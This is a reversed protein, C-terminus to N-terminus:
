KKVPVAKELKRKKSKKETTEEVELLKLLKERAEDEDQAFVSKKKGEFVATYVKQNVVKGLNGSIHSLHPFDTEMKKRKAQAEKWKRRLVVEDGFVALYEEVLGRRDLEEALEL